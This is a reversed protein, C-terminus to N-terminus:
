FINILTDGTTTKTPDAPRTYTCILRYSDLRINKADVVTFVYDWADGIEEGFRRVEVVTAGNDRMARAVDSEFDYWSAQSDFSDAGRAKLVTRFAPADYADCEVVRTLKWRSEYGM